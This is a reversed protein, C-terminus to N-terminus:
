KFLLFLCIEVASESRWNGPCGPAPVGIQVPIESTPLLSVSKLWWRDGGLTHVSLFSSPFSRLWSELWARWRLIGRDWVTIVVTGFM